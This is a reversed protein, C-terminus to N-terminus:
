GASARGGRCSTSRRRARLQAPSRLELAGLESRLRDAHRHRHERQRLGELPQAHVLQHAAPREPLPPGGEDAARQVRSKNDNNRTRSTGTRNFQAFQPRGANGSGYVLSANTDVDMVLNVGRNGVYAIDATLSHVAAAAPVRREVLAAHRRAPGAPHRRLDLQAAVGDVPIIGNSPITVCRRRPSAPRWRAPASSATPRRHRLLEAQGPLQVRLPQGPVSDHERWLGARLVTKDTSAGRCAPARRQLEQVHKKVNLANTTDGFGSSASRTPPRTTTPWAARRRRPGRAAHLVGLAPRPRRHHELRAQWKDHVFLFTAWHKTGPEDIVKLDRQVGNPWDLLFSALRTRPVAAAHRTESPLGTGSANFNFRGRPGGADQTQLLM